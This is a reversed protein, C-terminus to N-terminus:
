SKRGNEFEKITKEIYEIDFGGFPEGIYNHDLVMDKEKLKYIFYQGYGNYDHDYPESLEKNSCGGDEDIAFDQFGTIEAQYEVVYKGKDTEFVLGWKDDLYHKM